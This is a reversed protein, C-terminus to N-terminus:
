WGLDRLRGVLLTSFQKAPATELHEYDRFANDPMSHALDLVAVDHRAGAAKVQAAWASEDKEGGPHCGIYQSSVPMLVVAVEIHQARLKSV